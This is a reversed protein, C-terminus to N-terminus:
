EMAMIVAARAPLQLRVKIKGPPGRNPPGSRKAKAAMSYVEPGWRLHPVGFPAYLRKTWLVFGQRFPPKAARLMQIGVPGRLISCKTPAIGHGDDGSSQGSVSIKGCAEKAPGWVPPGSQKPRTAMSYVEPGWYLPEGGSGLPLPDPPSLVSARLCANRLAVAAFRRSKARLHLLPAPATKATLRFRLCASELHIPGFPWSFTAQAMAVVIPRASHRTCANQGWSLVKASPRSQRGSCKM